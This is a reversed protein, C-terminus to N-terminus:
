TYKMKEIGVYLVCIMKKMMNKHIIMNYIIRNLMIKIITMIKQIKYTM